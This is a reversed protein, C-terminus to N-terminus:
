SSGPVRATLYRGAVGERISVVQCVSRTSGAGRAGRPRGARGAGGKDARARKRSEPFKAPPSLAIILTAASVELLCKINKPHTFIRARARAGTHVHPVPPPPLLLLPIPIRSTPARFITERAGTCLSHKKQYRAVLFFAMSRAARERASKASRALNASLTSGTFRINRPIDNELRTADRRLLPKYYLNRM